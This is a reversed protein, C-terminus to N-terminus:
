KTPVFNWKRYCAPCYYGSVGNVKQKHFAGDKRTGLSIDKGCDPGDCYWKDTKNAKDFGKDSERSSELWLQSDEAQSSGAGSSSARDEALIAAAAAVSSACDESRRPSRGARFDDDELDLLVVSSRKFGRRDDVLDDDLIQFSSVKRSGAQFDSRLRDLMEPNGRYDTYAEVQQRGLWSNAPLDASFLGTLTESEPDWGHAVM